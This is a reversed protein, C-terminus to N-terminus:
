HSAKVAQVGRYVKELKGVHTQISFLQQQRRRLNTGVAQRLAEDNALRELVRAGEAYDDPPFLQEHAGITEIHAGGAAAVVPVGRAMAEVVSLGFPEAPAPALLISANKLLSDTDRVRGHFTVAHQIGLEGCLAHLMPELSGAGAVHLQWGNRPLSSSAWIRIGIGPSKEPELRQLMVVSQNLLQAQEQDRVGNYLLTSPEGIGDAVFKSIALQAGLNRRVLFTAPRALFRRARRDPFHRTAVLRRSRVSALAAATEAATMHAHIVDVRGLRVLARFVAFTSEAPHFVIEGSLEARMRDGDGGVVAIDHGRADLENSVECIYREVGAFSDSRVVQAIRMRGENMVASM